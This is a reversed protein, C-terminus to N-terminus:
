DDGHDAVQDVVRLQAEGGRPCGHGVEPDRGRRPGEVPLGVLPLVAVRQEEGARHPTLCSFVNGLRQLLAHPDHHLPTELLALVLSALTLLAGDDLELDFLDTRRQLVRGGLDGASGTLTAATTAEAAASAAALLTTAAEAAALRGAVRPGGGSRLLGLA